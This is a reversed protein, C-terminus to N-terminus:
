IQISVQVGVALPLGTVIIILMPLGPCIVSTGENSVQISATNAAHSIHFSQPSVSLVPQLTTQDQAKGYLHFYFPNEDPDNNILQVTTSYM